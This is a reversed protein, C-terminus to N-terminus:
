LKNHKSEEDWVLKRSKIIKLIHKIAEDKDDFGNLENELAFLTDQVVKAALNPVIQPFIGDDQSIKAVYLIFNTREKNYNSL